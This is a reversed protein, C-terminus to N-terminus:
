KEDVSPNINMGGDTMILTKNLLPYSLISVHSLLKADKIGNVSDVVAKLLFKTDILGKMIIPNPLKKSLAITKKGIEILDIEHIINATINHKIILKEIETENGILTLQLSLYQLAHKIAIIVEEDHAAAVILSFSNNKAKGALRELMEFNTKV